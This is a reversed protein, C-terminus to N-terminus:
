HMHSVQVLGDIYNRFSIQFQTEILSAVANGTKHLAQSTHQHKNALAWWESSRHQSYCSGHLVHLSFKNGHSLFLKLIDLKKM